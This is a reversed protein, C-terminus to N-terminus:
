EKETKLKQSSRYETPTVGYRNKFSESFKGPNSFGADSAIDTIRRDTNQLEVAAQELRYERLYKYVPMGYISRFVKQMQTVSIRHERALQEVSSYNARDSIMHDRLHKVLEVQSKPFYHNSEPLLPMDRLLFFLETVKLRVYTIDTCSISEYLERFVHECKSGARRIFYWGSSLLYERIRNFDVAFIGMNEKTWETAQDCDIYLGVGEYYGLPFESVSVSGHKGEFLNASMDGPGLIGYDRQSFACEFRGSVCFNLQLLPNYERNEQCHYAQFCNLNLEVGPFVTYCTMRGMGDM